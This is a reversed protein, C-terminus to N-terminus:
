VWDMIICYLCIKLCKQLNILILFQFRENIFTNLGQIVEELSTINKATDTQKDPPKCLFYQVLNCLVRPFSEAHALSSGILNLQLSASGLNIVKRLVALYLMKTLVQILCLYHSYQYHGTQYKTSVGKASTIAKLRQMSPVRPNPCNIENNKSSGRLIYWIQDLSETLQWRWINWPNYTQAKAPGSLSLRLSKGFGSWHHRTQISWIM